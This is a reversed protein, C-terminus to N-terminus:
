LARATVLGSRWTGSVARRESAALNWRQRGGPRIRIGRSGVQRDRLQRAPGARAANGCKQIYAGAPTKRQGRDQIQLAMWLLPQFAHLRPAQGPLIRLTESRPYPAGASGVQM